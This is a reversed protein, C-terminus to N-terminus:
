TISPLFGLSIGAEGLFRTVESQRWCPQSRCKRHLQPQRGKAAVAAPLDSALPLPILHPQGLLAGPPQCTSRRYSNMTSATQVRAVLCRELHKTSVVVLRGAPVRIIGMKCISFGPVTETLFYRSTGQSTLSQVLIEAWFQNRAGAKARVETSQPKAPPTLPLSGEQWHLLHPNSGQTLFIWQLLVHYASWYKQRSFGMSLPAKHAVTWPTAFLRVRSFHTLAHARVCVCVCVCAHM